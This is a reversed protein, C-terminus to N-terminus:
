DYLYPIAEPPYSELEEIMDAICDQRWSPLYHGGTAYARTTSCREGDEWSWGDKVYVSISFSPSEEVECNLKEALRKLKPMLNKM